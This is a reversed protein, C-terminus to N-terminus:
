EAETPPHQRSAHDPDERLAKLALRHLTHLEDPTLASFAANTMQQHTHTGRKLARQGAQTLELVHRRRDDPDRERAILRQQQLHDLVKVLDSRDIRARDAVQQQSAHTLEDICVLVVYERLSLGERRLGEEIADRSHRHLLGLVYSPWRMVGTATIPATKVATM